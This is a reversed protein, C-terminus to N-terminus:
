RRRIERGFGVGEVRQNYKIELDQWEIMGYRVMGYWIVTPPIGSRVYAYTRVTILCYKNREKKCNRNYSFKRIM